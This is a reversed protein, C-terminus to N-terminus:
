PRAEDHYRAEIRLTVRMQRTKGAQSPSALSSDMASADPARDSFVLEISAMNWLPESQRWSELFAFLAPEDLGILAIRAGQIAVRSGGSSSEGSRSPDRSAEPSLSQLAREEIGASRLANTVKEILDTERKRELENTPALKSLTAVRQADKGLQSLGAELRSVEDAASRWRLGQAVSLGLALLVLARVVAAGRGIPVISRTSATSM